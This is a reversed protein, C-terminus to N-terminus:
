RGVGDRDSGPARERVLSRALSDMMEETLAGRSYVRGLRFLGQRDWGRREAAGTWVIRGTETEVLRLAIAVRPEPEQEGQGVDYLEVSGTLIADAGCLGRLASRADADVGGWGVLRQRRLVENTCGPSVPRAGLRHVAARAAETATEANATADSATLGAFPVIALFGLAAGASQRPGDPESRDEVLSGALDATLRQM